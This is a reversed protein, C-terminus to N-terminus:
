WEWPIVRFRRLIRQNIFPEHPLTNLVDSEQKNM